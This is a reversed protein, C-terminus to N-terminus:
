RSDPEPSRNVVRGTEDWETWSDSGNATYLRSYRRRGSAHWGTWSGQRNGMWYEGAEAKRGDEFYSVWLGHQAGDVFEGAVQLAGSEFWRKQSGRPKGEIYQVQSRPKQSPYWEVWTGHRQGQRYAGTAQRVPPTDDSWRVAPGHRVTKDATALACFQETRTHVARAGAACELADMGLEAATPGPVGPRAPQERSVGTKTAFALLGM